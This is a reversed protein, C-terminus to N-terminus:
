APHSFDLPFQELISQIGKSRGQIDNLMEAEHTPNKELRLGLRQNTSAFSIRYISIRNVRTDFRYFKTYVLFYDISIKSGTLDVRGKGSSLGPFLWWLASYSVNEWVVYRIDNKTYWEKLRKMDYNQIYWFILTSPFFKKPDIKSYYIVTPSDCLVGGGKYLAGLALGADMEPKIVYTMQPFMGINLLPLLVVTLLFIAVLRKKLFLGKLKVNGPISAFLISTIPFMYVLFRPESLSEGAFVQMSVYVMFALGLVALTRVGTRKELFGAVLGIPLLLSTVELAMVVFNGLRSLNFGSIRYLYRVDWVVMSSEMHYWALPDNTNVFSWLCWGVIVACTACIMSIQWRISFRRQIVAITLLTGAIFWTEYRTLMALMLPTIFHIPKNQFYYYIALVVLFSSLTETLALTNLDIFWPQLALASGAAIGLIERNCFQKTIKYVLVCALSGLVLNLAHPVTLDYIGTLNMFFANAYHYLPLWVINMTKPKFDTYAYGNTATLYSILWHHYSDGYYDVGRYFMLWLRIVLASAFIVISVISEIFPSTKLFDPSRISESLQHKIGQRTVLIKAM